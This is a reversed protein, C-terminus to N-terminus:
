IGLKIIQILNQFNDLEKQFSCESFLFTTVKANQFFIIESVKFAIRFSLICSEFVWLDSSYIYYDKWTVFSLPDINVQIYFSLKNSIVILWM